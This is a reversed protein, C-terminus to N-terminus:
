RAAAFEGDIFALLESESNWHLGLRGLEEADAEAGDRYSVFGSPTITIFETSLGIRRCANTETGDTDPFNAMSIQVGNIVRTGTAKQSAEALDNWANMKAQRASKMTRM